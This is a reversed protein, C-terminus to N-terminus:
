SRLIDENLSRLLLVVKDPASAEFPVCPYLPLSVGDITCHDAEPMRPVAGQAGPACLDLILGVRAEALTTMELVGVGRVELLGAIRAPAQAWLENSRRTLIVQDDAVLQVGLHTRGLLRLALDSKGSGPAGRLLVATAGIAICTGHVLSMIGALSRRYPRSPLVM